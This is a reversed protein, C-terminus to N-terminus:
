LFPARVVIAEVTRRSSSKIWVTQGVEANEM